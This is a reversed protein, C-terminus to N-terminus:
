TTKLRYPFLTERQNVIFSGISAQHTLQRSERNVKEMEEDLKSVVYAHGVGQRIRVEGIGRNGLRLLLVPAAMMYYQRM